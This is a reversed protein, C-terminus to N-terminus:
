EDVGLCEGNGCFGSCCDDHDNCGLGNQRRSVDGPDICHAEEPKQAACVGDLSVAHRCHDFTANPNPQDPVKQCHSLRCSTKWPETQECFKLCSVSAPEGTDPDDLTFDQSECKQQMCACYLTCLSYTGAGDCPGKCGDLCDRIVKGPGSSPLCALCAGGEDSCDKGVNLCWRHNQLATRCAEDKECAAEAEAEGDCQSLCNECQGQDAVSCEHTPEVWPFECRGDGNSEDLEAREIGLVQNCGAVQQVSVALTILALLRATTPM